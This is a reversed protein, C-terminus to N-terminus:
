RWLGWRRTEFTAARSLNYLAANRELLVVGDGVRVLSAAMMKGVPGYGVVAVEFDADCGDRVAASGAVHDNM